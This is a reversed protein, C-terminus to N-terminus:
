RNGETTKGVSSFLQTAGAVSTCCPQISLVATPLPGADEGNAKHQRSLVFAREPPGARQKSTANRLPTRGVTVLRVDVGVKRSAAVASLGAV